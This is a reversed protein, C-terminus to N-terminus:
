PRHDVQMRWASPSLGFRARFWRSFASLDSFGLLDAVGTLSRGSSQLMRTVIETRVSELIESFTRGEAALRRHLTRRDLDLQRAIHEVTCRGSPLQLQVLERVKDELTTNPRALM